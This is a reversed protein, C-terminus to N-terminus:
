CGKSGATKLFELTDNPQLIYSDNVPNGNVIGQALRDVNLVEKLFEAVAGVTKNALDFVGSSAGCSVRVTTTTRDGKRNQPKTLRSEFSAAMANVRQDVKPRDTKPTDTKPTDTKPAVSPVGQKELIADIVVDKRKKSMGSIGLNYACMQKLEAVTKAELQEKTYTSM